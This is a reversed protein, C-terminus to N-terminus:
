AINRYFIHHGIRACEIADPTRAWAPLPLSAAHYHTAGHTHDSLQRATETLGLLDQSLRGALAFLADAETVAVLKPRNPDNANWCSFQWAKLCVEEVTGGWWHKSACRNLVVQGIAAMGASADPEGRAEGWMTRAMLDSARQPQVVPPVPAPPPAILGRGEDPALLPQGRLVLECGSWALVRDIPTVIANGLSGEPAQGVLLGVLRQQTDWVPAGSDGPLSGGDIQCCLVDSLGYRLPPDGVEVDTDFRNVVRGPLHHHRTLLRVEDGARADAWGLPWEMEDVLMGLAAEDLSLLGADLRVRRDLRTLDPSWSHARGQLVTDKRDLAALSVRNGFEAQPDGGLVHGATLGFLAGHGGTAGATRLVATLTGQGVSHDLNEPRLWAHAQGTSRDPRRM